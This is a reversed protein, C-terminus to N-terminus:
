AGFWYNDSLDTTGTGTDYVTRNPDPAAAPIPAPSPLAAQSSDNAHAQAFASNSAPPTGTGSDMFAGKALAVAGCWKSAEFYGYQDIIWRAVAPDTETQDITPLGVSSGIASVAGGAASGAANVVAAGASSAAGAIGGKKYVWFAVGLLAVGALVLGGEKLSFEGSM